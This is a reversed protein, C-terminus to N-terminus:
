TKMFMFKITTNTAQSLLNTLLKEYLCIDYKHDSIQDFWTHPLQCRIVKNFAVTWDFMEPLEPM